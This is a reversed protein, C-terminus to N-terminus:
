LWLVKTDLDTILGYVEQKAEDRQHLTEGEEFPVLDRLAARGELPLTTTSRFSRLFLGVLAVMGAVAVIMALVRFPGEALVSGFLGAFAVLASASKVLPDLVKSLADLLAAWQSLPQEAGGAEPPSAPQPRAPARARRIPQTKLDSM